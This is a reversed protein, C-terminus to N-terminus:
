TSQEFLEALYEPFGEWLLLLQKKIKSNKKSNSNFQVPTFVLMARSIAYFIKVGPHLFPKFM